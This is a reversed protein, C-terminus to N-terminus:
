GLTQFAAAASPPGQDHSLTTKQNVVRPLSQDPDSCEVRGQSFFDTEVCPLM